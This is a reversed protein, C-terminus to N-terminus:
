ATPILWCQVIYSLNSTVIVLIGLTYVTIIVLCFHFLSCCVLLFMESYTVNSWYFVMSVFRIDELFPFKAIIGKVDGDGMENIVQRRQKFSSRLLRLMRPIDHSRTECM